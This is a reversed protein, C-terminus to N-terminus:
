ERLPVAAAFQPAVTADRHFTTRHQQEVRGHRRDHTRDDDDGADQTAARARPREREHNPEGRCCREAHEAAQHALAALERVEGRVIRERASEVAARELAIEV